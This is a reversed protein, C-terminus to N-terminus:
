KMNFHLKLARGRRTVQVALHNANRLRAYANLTANPNAINFGNIKQIRDGDEFGLAGLLDNSRVCLLRIGSSARDAQDPVIRPVRMLEAQSELIKDVVVKDVDFENASLRRIHAPDSAIV